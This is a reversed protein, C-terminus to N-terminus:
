ALQHPKRLEPTEVKGSMYTVAPALSRRSKRGLCTAQLNVISPKLPMCVIKHSCYVDCNAHQEQKLEADSFPFPVRCFSGLVALDRMRAVAHLTRRFSRSVVEQLVNKRIDTKRAAAASLPEM